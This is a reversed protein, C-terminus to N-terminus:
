PASSVTFATGGEAGGTVAEATARTLTQAGLEAAVVVAADLGIVRATQVAAVAWRREIAVQNDLRALL